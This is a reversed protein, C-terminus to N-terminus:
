WDKSAHEKNIVCCNHLKRNEGFIGQVGKLINVQGMICGRKSILMKQGVRDSTKKTFYKERGWGEGWKPLRLAHLSM